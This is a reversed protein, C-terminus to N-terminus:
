GYNLITIILTSQTGTVLYERLQTTANDIAISCMLYLYSLQYQYYNFSQIPLYITLNFPAHNYMCNNIICIQQVCM